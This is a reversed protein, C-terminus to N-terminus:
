PRAAGVTASRTGTCSAWPAAAHTGAGGAGGPTRARDAASRALAAPHASGQPAAVSGDPAWAAIAGTTTGALVINSSPLVILHSVAGDLSGLPVVVVSLRKTPVILQVLRLNPADVDATVAMTHDSAVAWVTGAMGDSAPLATAIWDVRGPAACRRWLCRAPRM